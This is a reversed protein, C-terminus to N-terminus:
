FVPNGDFPSKGPMFRFGGHNPLNNFTGQCTEPTLDCGLYLTVAEGVEIRDTSGFINFSNGVLFSELGRRDMAPAPDAEWEFYGGNFQTGAFAGLSAVTITTGTLATITTEVKFLSKDAKCDQDYLMHPCNREWCLRLGTRRLSTPLGFIVAKARDKRKVNGVTGFWYVSAEGSPDDKHFRIARLQISEAPPTSRYLDVIPLNAPINVTFERQGAGLIVGEDSIAIAEWTIPAGGEYSGFEVNRDASTYRWVKAGWTLEYLFVPRGTRNGIEFLSFAM